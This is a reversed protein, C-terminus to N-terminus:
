YGRGLLTVELSLRDIGIVIYLLADLGITVQAFSPCGYVGMAARFNLFCFKKFKLIKVSYEDGFDEIHELEFGILSFRKM